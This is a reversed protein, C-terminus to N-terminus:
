GGQVGGGAGGGIDGNLPESGGFKFTHVRGLADADVIVAVVQGADVQFDVAEARDMGGFGIQAASAGQDMLAGRDAECGDGAGVACPGGQILAAHQVQGATM